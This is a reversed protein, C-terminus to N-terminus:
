SATSCGFIKRREEIKALQARLEEAAQREKEVVDPKAREVFQPNSLRAELKALEETAKKHQGALRECEKADDVLDGIPLHIDVGEITTSIHKASPKGSILSDVWAQSRVVTEGDRLPGEVYLEPISKMPTLGLEARLARAARVIHFWSEVQQEIAEDAYHAAWEPWPSNMVFEAKDRLPLHSYIEETLYPMVPHLMTLFASLSRLLVWQPTAKGVPDALRPKGVEIYWDCVENWFFGFLAQCARQLDYADYAERVERETAALRSLLWRDVRELETPEAPEGADLNMLVFRAANWIKNCFNRADETRRESYRIEQNFGCQSLLTYRVADAGVKEIVERPDVGTGLSKSMRQGSETLITAHIYVTDFPIEEMTYLGMMIMRAVWLYIINRDTVLISTPYYSKLDDTAEPWGLTAFPWLGSSFWTDLVDDDQRIIPDDGAKSQAEEWSQAAITAGSETYYVPIRHGWWLQRSINWDRINEMWDLYVKNYREPVFQIRGSKVAEIAPGALATQKVFWQESLLPEITEGSRESVLVAIDHDKVEVLYGQEELDAVIAKRAEIRDMGAYKGGEATVKATADLIVPMPLGNRAGVEYDNADHAPTIKVAGTGFEPDPYPDAILPIERGVLPLILTKGVLGDYRKDSPHVAVAVDALMTEPRTTAIIIEGSGDSFPYRVHYLKGRVMKRETEIDSVSTQLIPDWNVVRKGRYIYGKEFWDIFIQLVARVYGEDLTFRTRSWDFACGFQRFQQLITNGSEERWEWVKEVFKERGLSTPSIGEKKLNKSVVSQTAIGAHDQGPLILVSYGRLRKYRGVLDQIPYCLAHGMHLSGTINPPPITITFKPKASHPDPKFLGANEWIEYWKTEVLSADYRPSLSTNENM